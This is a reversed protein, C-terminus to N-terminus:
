QETRQLTAPFRAGYLVLLSKHNSMNLQVKKSLASSAVFNVISTLSFILAVALPGDQAEQRVQVRRTRMETRIRVSTKFEGKDGAQGDNHVKM